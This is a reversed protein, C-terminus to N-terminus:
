GTGSLMYKGGTYVLKKEKILRDLYRYLDRSSEPRYGMGSLVLIKPAQQCFEKTFKQELQKGTLPAKKLEKSVWASIVRTRIKEQASAVFHSIHAPEGAPRALEVSLEIASKLILLGITISALADAYYLWFAQSSQALFSLVIGGCVLLSTLFHNRSDVSQCMIAFNSNKKGTVYQYASLLLMLVGCLASVLFASVGQEIPGPHVAKNFSATGIVGLSVFMMVIILLSALKEKNFRIGLWVLVSSVTDVTNDIGDAILGASGSILGFVLKLVSLLVHVAITVISAMKVSFITKMFYPIVEQMHEAVERGRPTLSFKGQREELVGCKLAFAIDKDLRARVVKRRGFRGMRRELESVYEQIEERLMPKEILELTVAKFYGPLSHMAKHLEDMDKWYKTKQRRWPARVIRDPRM